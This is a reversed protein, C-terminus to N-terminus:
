HPHGNVVGNMKPSQDTYTVPSLNFPKPQRLPTFTLSEGAQEDILRQAENRIEPDEISWVYDKESQRLSIMEQVVNMRQRRQDIQTKLLASQGEQFRTEAQMSLLQTQMNSVRKEIQVENEVQQEVFERDWHYTPVIISGVMLTFFILPFAVYGIWGGAQHAGSDYYGLTAHFLSIAMCICGFIM